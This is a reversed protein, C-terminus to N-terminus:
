SCFSRSGRNSHLYQRIPHFGFEPDCVSDLFDPFLLALKESNQLPSSNKAGKLLAEELWRNHRHDKVGIQGFLFYSSITKLVMDKLNNLISKITIIGNEDSMM